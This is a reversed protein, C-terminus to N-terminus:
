TRRQDHLQQLLFVIEPITRQQARAWAQELLGADLRTLRTYVKQLTELEDSRFASIGGVRGLDVALQKAFELFPWPRQSRTLAAQYDIGRCRQRLSEEHKQILLEVYNYKAQGPTSAASPQVAPGQRQYRQGIGLYEGQLSHLLVTELEGFPDYRVEVKDGRLQPDVQFFFSKVRVDSFTPDVKRQERQLFYKVVQQLDVHRIFQRGQEYRQRPSQKTESNPQEHYSVQLWAALAQNLRDLTLIPGAHVEAELQGQATEFFREILGGPPPDGVGRHLLRINLACCAQRLAHARYIKANDLYLERSAGHVSWARLLSDILIDFHERLYYRAEVIYRSHCDIFASLHTEVARDGDMVYPGDEFDGLWLANSTDRTWRCRVKQQRVGLKLRTAGARKLHRYLTSKPITAQFEEKLFANITHESRRPQDKKLEVAKDVMAARARRPQGRDKRRQRLFADLGGKRYQKWKRWLTARSPKRQQGDPFTCETEALQRLFLGAEEAPIEGYLLPGLLSCWFVAWQEQRDQRSPM